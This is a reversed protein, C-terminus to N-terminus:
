HGRDGEPSLPHTFSQNISLELTIADIIPNGSREIQLPLHNQKSRRIANILSAAANRTHQLEYESQRASRVRAYLTNLAGVIPWLSQTAPFPIRTGFNGNTMKTLADVLQEIDEDLQQKDQAVLAERNALDHQVKAIEKARDGLAIARLVNRM